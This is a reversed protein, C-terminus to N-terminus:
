FPEIFTGIEATKLISARLDADDDVVFVMPADVSTM